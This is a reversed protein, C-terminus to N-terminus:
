YLLLKWNTEPGHYLQVSTNYVAGEVMDYSIAAPQTPGSNDDSTLLIPPEANNRLFLDLDTAPTNWTLNMNYVGAEGSRVTFRVIDYEDEPNPLDGCVIFPFGILGLNIAAGGLITGGGNLIFRSHVPESTNGANDTLSLEVTLDHGDCGWELPIHQSSISDASWSTIETPISLDQTHGDMTVHLIGHSLDGDEDTPVFDVRLGAPTPVLTLGQIVPAAQPPEIDTDTDTDVGVDTDTDIPSNVHSLDPPGVIYACGIFGFPLILSIVRM